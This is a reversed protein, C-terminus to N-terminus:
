EDDGQLINVDSTYQWSFCKYNAMTLFGSMNQWSSATEISPPCM